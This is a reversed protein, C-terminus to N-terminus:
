YGLEKLEKDIIKKNADATHVYAATNKIRSVVMYEGGSVLTYKSVSGIDVTTEKSAGSKLGEFIEKNTKFFSKSLKKDSFEYFEIQYSSDSSIALYVKKIEPNASFQDTAELVTYKKAEMKTKFDAATIATKKSCGSLVLVSVFLFIALLIKNFKKM